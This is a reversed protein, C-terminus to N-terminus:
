SENEERKVTEKLPLKAPCVYNCLGCGICKKHSLQKLFCKQVNIDVPCIKLCAGCNICTTALEKSKKNIIITDIDPTIIIDELKQVKVGNLYGNIFIEYDNDIIKIFKKVLEKGWVGLKTNIILSKEIADGSITIIKEDINKGKFCSLYINYIDQSSLYVTNEIDLNLFKSLFIKNSILYKDPLLNLEIKPYTGLISKVNKISSVNTNKIALVGKKLGLINLLREITELIENYYNTLIIFENLSYIEEDVSTIVLNKIKNIDLKAYIDNLFYKKLTIKLEEINNIEKKRTKVKINEKFDNTIKLASIYNNKFLIKKSGSITGSISSIFNGFYTNKFVYDNLKFTQKNIIPIYIEKPDEYNNIRNVILVNPNEELKILKLM